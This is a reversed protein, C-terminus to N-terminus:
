VAPLLWVPVPVGEAVCRDLTARALAAACRVGEVLVPEDGAALEAAVREIEGTAGTITARVAGIVQRYPEADLDVPSDATVELNVLLTEASVWGMEHVLAVTAQMLRALVDSPRAFPVERAAAEDRGRGLRLLLVAAAEVPDGTADM